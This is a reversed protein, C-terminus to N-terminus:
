CEAGNVMEQWRHLTTLAELPTLRTVDLSRLQDLLRHGPAEFLSLQASPQQRAPVSSRRKGRTPTTGQKTLQDLVQMAREVVATPLGALRAVQIGYSRNVSGPLV